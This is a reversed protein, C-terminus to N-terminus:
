TFYTYDLLTDGIGLNEREGIMGGIDVKIAYVRHYLESLSPLTREGKDTTGLELLFAEVAAYATNLRENSPGGQDLAFIGKFEAILNEAKNVWEEKSLSITKKKKKRWFM